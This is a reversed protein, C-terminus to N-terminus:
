FPGELELRSGSIGSGSTKIQVKQGQSVNISYVLGSKASWDNPPNQLFMSESKKSGQFYLPSNSTDNSRNWELLSRGSFRIEQGNAHFLTVVMQGSGAASLFPRIKLNGDASIIKSKSGGGNLTLKSNSGSPPTSPSSSSPPPPSPLVQSLPATPSGGNLSNAPQALHPSRVWPRTGEAIPSYPNRTPISPPSLSGPFGNFLESTIPEEGVQSQIKQYIALDADGIKLKISKAEM